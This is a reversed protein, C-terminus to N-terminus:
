SHPTECLKGIMELYNHCFMKIKIALDQRTQGSKTLPSRHNVCYKNSLKSLESLLEHLHRLHEDFTERSDSPNLYGINRHFITLSLALPRFNESERIKFDYQSIENLIANSDNILPTLQTRIGAQANFTESQRQEEQFHVNRRPATTKTADMGQEEEDNSDSLSSTTASSNSDTEDNQGRQEEDENNDEHVPTITSALSTNPTLRTEDAAVNRDLAAEFLADPDNTFSYNENESDSENKESVAEDNTNTLSTTTPSSPASPSQSTGEATSAKQMQAVQQLDIKPFVSSFFESSSIKSDGARTSAQTAIDMNLSIEELEEATFNDDNKLSNWINKISALAEESQSLHYRLKENTNVIKEYLAEKNTPSEYECSSQLSNKNDTHLCTNIDNPDLHRERTKSSESNHAPAAFTIQSPPPDQQEHLPTTPASPNNKLM